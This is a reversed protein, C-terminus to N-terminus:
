ETLLLYNSAFRETLERIATPSSNLSPHLRSFETSLESLDRTGDLLSLLAREQTTLDLVNGHWQNVICRNNEACFRVFPSSRPRESVVTCVAPPTRWARALGAGWAALMSRALVASGDILGDPDSALPTHFESPLLSCALPYLENVPVAQPWVNMLHKLAAKGLPESTNLSGGDWSLQITETNGPDFEFDPFPRVLAVSLSEMSRHDILRNIKRDKRCVVSRRYGTNVLFDLLQERDLIPARNLAATAEASVGMAATQTIDAEAAFQLDFPELMAAFQHFYFPENRDSIYDHYLYHDTSIRLSDRVNRYMQGHPTSESTARAIFEVARRAEQIQKDAGEFVRVHRRILERVTGRFNWGPLVNYSIAAIGNETLNDRCARLIADREEKAAWSFVGPCLIYDFRGWSPDIETVNAHRFEANGVGVKESAQQAECVRDKVLDVGVFASNPFEIAFPLINPGDACGIELVRCANIGGPNLGLVSAVAELNRLQIVGDAVGPYDVRDYQFGGDNQM